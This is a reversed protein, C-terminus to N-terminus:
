KLDKLCHPIKPRDDYPECLVPSCDSGIDKFRNNREILVDRRYLIRNHSGMIRVPIRIPLGKSKEHLLKELLDNEFEDNEETFLLYKGHAFAMGANYSAATDLHARNTIIKIRRDRESVKRLIVLSDKQGRDDIIIMEIDSITQNQFSDVLNKISEESNYLHCIVSLRLDLRVDLYPLDRKNLLSLSYSAKLVSELDGALLSTVAIHYLQNRIDKRCPLMENITTLLTKTKSQNIFSLIYDIAAEAQKLPMNLPMMSIICDIIFIHADNRQNSDLNWSNVREIFVSAFDCKDKVLSSDIRKCNSNPRYTYYYVPCDLVNVTCENTLCDLNFILDQATRCRPDFRLSHKKIFSRQYAIAWPRAVPVKEDTKYPNTESLGSGTFFASKILASPEVSFVEGSNQIIHYEAFSFLLDVRNEDLAEHLRSLAFPLYWDDADCFLIYDGRAHSLGLNRANSINAEDLHFSRIRSDTMEYHKAIALTSDSSGNEIILIEHEVESQIQLSEVARSLTDEADKAPIIISFYPDSPAIESIVGFSGKIKGFDLTDKFRM